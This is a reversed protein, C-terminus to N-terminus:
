SNVGVAEKDRDEADAIKELHEALDLWEQRRAAPWGLAYLLTVLERFQSAQSRCVYTYEDCYDLKAHPGLLYDWAEHYARDLANDLADFQLETIRLRLRKTKM